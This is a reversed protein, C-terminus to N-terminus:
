PLAFIDGVSEEGTTPDVEYAICTLNADCALYGYGSNCYQTGAHAKGCGYVPAGGGGSTFLTVGAVVERSMGHNHGTAVLVQGAHAELIPM